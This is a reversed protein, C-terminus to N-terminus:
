SRSPDQPQSQVSRIRRGLEPPMGKGCLLLDRFWARGPDHEHARPWWMRISALPLEVPPAFMRIGILSRARQAVTRAITCIMDSESVVLPATVFHPVYLGVSRQHGARELVRDVVPVGRGEFRVVVHTAELYAKLTLRRRIAPHGQRAIVTFPDQFLEACELGAGRVLTTGALILDLRGAQLLAASDPTLREISLRIGPAHERLYTMLTPLATFEFYDVTAIRITLEATRPDFSAGGGLTTGLRDLLEPLEAAIAQARASLEFRRGQSVLLPDGLQERLKALSHSMASQSVGVERAALGVARHRLLADLASVLNLNFARIDFTSM